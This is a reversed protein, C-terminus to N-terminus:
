ICVAYNGSCANLYFTGHQSFMYSQHKKSCKQKTVKASFFTALITILNKKCSIKNLVFYLFCYYFYRYSVIFGSYSYLCCMSGDKFIKSGKKLISFKLFFSLVSNETVDDKAQKINTRKM